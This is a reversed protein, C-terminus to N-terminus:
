TNPLRFWTKKRRAIARTHDPFIASRKAEWLDHSMAIHRWVPRFAYGSFYTLYLILDYSPLNKLGRSQAVDVFGQKWMFSWKMEFKLTALFLSTNVLVAPCWVEGSDVSFYYVKIQVRSGNQMFVFCNQVGSRMPLLPLRHAHAPWATIHFM